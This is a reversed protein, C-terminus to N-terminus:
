EARIGQGDQLHTRLSVPLLLKSSGEKQRPPLLIFHNVGDAPRTETAETYSTADFLTRVSVHLRSTGRGKVSRASPSVKEM